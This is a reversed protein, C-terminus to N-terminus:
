DLRAVVAEGGALVAGGVLREGARGRASGLAVTASVGPLRVESAAESLNLAVLVREGRLYALVDGEVAVTRHAGAALAPEARRLALLERHLTLISGPDERQLAVNRTAADDSLPLWPRAGPGSFGANPGDDWQMPTRAGDRGHGPVRLAWPDQVLEPPVAVDPMGLEDGYYLTPTGRLTLLLVAAARAQAPGVRTAVRPRDHNSLVSNPWAGDPLAAEYAEILAGLAEARWPTLLLHFNAPLDVGYGYYAM